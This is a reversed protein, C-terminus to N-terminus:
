RKGYISFKSRKKKRVPAQGKEEDVIRVHEEKTKHGIEKPSLESKQLGEAEADREKGTGPDIEIGNLTVKVRGIETDM